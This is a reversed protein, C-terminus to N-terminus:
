PSWPCEPWPATITGRQGGEKGLLKVPGLVMQHNIAKLADYLGALGAWVGIIAEMEVGTRGECSVEVYLWARRNKADWLHDITIADLTLPHTLPLIHATHKVGSIASIRTLSWPDGKPGIENTLADACEQCLELYGAASAKRRTVAKASVDSMRPRGDADLHTLAM